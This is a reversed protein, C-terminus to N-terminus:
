AHAAEHITVDFAVCPDFLTALRAVDLRAAEGQGVRAGLLCAMFPGAPHFNWETPAVIGYSRIRADQELDIFHYLRGRATEVAGYAIGEETRGSAFGAQGELTRCALAREM